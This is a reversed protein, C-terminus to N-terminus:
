FSFFHCKTEFSDCTRAFRIQFRIKVENDTRNFNFPSEAIIIKSREVTETNKASACTGCKSRESTLAFLFRKLPIKERRHKQLM